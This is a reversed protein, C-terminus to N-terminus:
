GLGKGLAAPCLMDKSLRFQGLIIMKKIMKLLGKFCCKVLFHVLDMIAYSSVDRFSPPPEIVLFINSSLFLKGQKDKTLM